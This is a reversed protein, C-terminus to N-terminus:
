GGVGDYAAAERTLLIDLRGRACTVTAGTAWVYVRYRTPALRTGPIVGVVVAEDDFFYSHLLVTDGLRLDYDRPPDPPLPDTDAFTTM